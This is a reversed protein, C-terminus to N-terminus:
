AADWGDMLPGLVPELSVGHDCIVEEPDNGFVFYVHSERGDPLRVILYGDDCSMAEAIIADESADPAFNHLESAGDEVATIVHDAARLARITQRVGAKDSSPASM